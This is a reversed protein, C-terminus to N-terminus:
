VRKADIHAIQFLKLLQFIKHCFKYCIIEFGDNNEGYNVNESTTASILIVNPDNEGM